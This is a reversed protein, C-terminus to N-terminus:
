GRGDAEFLAVGARSRRALGSWVVVVWGGASAEIGLMGSTVLRRRAVLVSPLLFGGLGRWHVGADFLSPGRQKGEYKM